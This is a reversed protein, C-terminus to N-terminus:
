TIPIFCKMLEIGKGYRDMFHYIANFVDYLTRLDDASLDIVYLNRRMQALYSICVTCLEQIVIEDVLEISLLYEILDRLKRGSHKLILTPNDWISTSEKQFNAKISIKDSNIMKALEQIYVLIRCDILETSLKYTSQIKEFLGRWDKASVSHYIIEANNLVHLKQLDYDAVVKDYKKFIAKLYSSNYTGPNSMIVIDIQEEPISIRKNAKGEFESIIIEAGSYEGYTSKLYIGKNAEYCLHLM